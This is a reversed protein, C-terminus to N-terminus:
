LLLPLYAKDLGAKIWVSEKHDPIFIKKHSSDFAYISTRAGGDDPAEQVGVEESVRFDAVVPFLHHLFM